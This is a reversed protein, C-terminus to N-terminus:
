RYPGSSPPEAYRAIAKLTLDEDKVKNALAKALDSATVIGKLIGSDVVPLRRVKYKVMLEAAEDLTQESSVTFLPTTMVDGVLVKTPDFSEALVRSVLDRETIIGVAKGGAAVILCGVGKATMLKAADHVTRDPEIKVLDRSMVEKVKLDM